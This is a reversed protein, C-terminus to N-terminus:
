PAYLACGDFGSGFIADFAEILVVQDGTTNPNGTPAGQNYFKFDYTLEILGNATEIIARGEGDNQSFINGDGRTPCLTISDLALDPLDFVQGDRDVIRLWAPLSAHAPITVALLLILALLHRM